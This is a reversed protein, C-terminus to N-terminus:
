KALVVRREKKLEDRIEKLKQDSAKMLANREADKNGVSSQYLDIAAKAGGGLVQSQRGGKFDEAIQRREEQAAEQKDELGQIRARKKEEAEERIRKKAEEAGHKEAAVRKEIEKRADAEDKERVKKVEAQGKRFAENAKEAEPDRALAAHQGENFQDPHEKALRRLDELAVKDGAGARGVLEDAQQQIDSAKNTTRLFTLFYPLKNLLSRGLGKEPQPNIGGEVMAGAAAVGLGKAGGGANVASGKFAEGQQKVVDTLANAMDKFADAGLKARDAIDQLDKASEKFIAENLVDGLDGFHKSLQNIAVAAIGAAGAIGASFGFGMVIQPINNVIANFGYQIDDVAYALQSLGRGANGSASQLEKLANNTNIIRQAVPAAREQFQQQSIAGQQLSTNLRKIVGEQMELNKNLDKISESNQVDVIVKLIPDAM